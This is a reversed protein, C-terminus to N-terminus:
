ECDGDFVDLGDVERSGGFYEHREREDMMDIRHMWQAFVACLSFVAFACIVGAGIVALFTTM